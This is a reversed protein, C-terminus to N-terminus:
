LLHARFDLLFGLVPQLLIVILLGLFIIRLTALLFRRGGPVERPSRRYLEWSLLALVVMLVAALVGWQATEWRLSWDAMGDVEDVDLGLAKQILGTM